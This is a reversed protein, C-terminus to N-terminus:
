RTKEDAAKPAPAALKERAAVVAENIEHILQQAYEKGPGERMQGLMRQALHELRPSLQSLLMLNLPKDKGLLPHRWLMRLTFEVRNPPLGPDDLGQMMACLVEMLATPDNIANYFDGMLGELGDTMERSQRGVAIGIPQLVCRQWLLFDYAGDTFYHHAYLHNLTLASCVALGAPLEKVHGPEFVASIREPMVEKELMTIM